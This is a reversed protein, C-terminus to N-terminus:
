VHAAENFLEMNSINETIVSIFYEVCCSDATLLKFYYMKVFSELKHWRATAPIIKTICKSFIKVSVANYLKLCQGTTMVVNEKSYGVSLLVQEINISSNLIIHYCLWYWMVCVYRLFYHCHKVCSTPHTYSTTLPM